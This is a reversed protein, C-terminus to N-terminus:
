EKSDWAKWRMPGNKEIEQMIVAKIASMDLHLSAIKEDVSADISNPTQVL